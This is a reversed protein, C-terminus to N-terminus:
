QSMMTSTLTNNVQVGQNKTSSSTQCIKNYTKPQTNVQVSKNKLILTKTDMAGKCECLKYYPM